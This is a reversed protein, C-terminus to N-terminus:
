DNEHLRSEFTQSQAEFSALFGTLTELATGLQGFAPTALIPGIIPILHLVAIAEIATAMTALTEQISQHLQAQAERYTTFKPFKEGGDGVQLGKEPKVVLKGADTNIEVTNGSDQKGDLDTPGGRKIQLEGADTIIASVGNEEWEFSTQADKWSLDSDRDDRLGGIILAATHEGNLCLIAVNTGRSIGDKNPKDARLKQRTRDRFGGLQNILTARYTRGTGTDTNPDRHQVLVDYEVLRKNLSRADDPWIIDVVQGQRFLFNGFSDPVNRPQAQLYHPTETM